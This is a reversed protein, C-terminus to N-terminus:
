DVSRVVHALAGSSFHMRWLIEYPSAVQFGSGPYLDYQAWDSQWLHIGGYYEFVFPANAPSECLVLDLESKSIPCYDDFDLLNSQSKPWLKALKRFTKERPRLRREVYATNAIALGAAAFKSKPPLRLLYPLPGIREPHEDSIGLYETNAIDKLLIYDNDLWLGGHQYLAAMQFLNTFNEWSGDADPRFLDESLITRADLHKAPFPLAGILKPAQYSYIYLDFGLSLASEYVLRSMRCVEDAQFSFMANPGPQFAPSGYESSDGRGTQSSVRRTRCAGLNISTFVDVM